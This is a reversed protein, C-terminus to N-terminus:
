PKLPPLSPSTPSKSPGQAGCNRMGPGNPKMRGCGAICKYKRQPSRPTMRAGALTKPQSPAQPTGRTAPTVPLLPLKTAAPMRWGPNPDTRDKYMESQIHPPNRGARGTRNRPAVPPVPESRNIPVKTADKPPLVKEYLPPRAQGPVEVDSMTGDSM